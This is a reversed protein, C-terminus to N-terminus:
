TSSCFKPLLHVRVFLTWNQTIWCIDKMDGKGEISILCYFLWALQSIRIVRITERNYFRMELWLLHVGFFYGQHWGTTIILFILIKLLILGLKLELPALFLSNWSKCSWIPNIPTIILLASNVRWCVISKLCYDPHPWLHNTCM